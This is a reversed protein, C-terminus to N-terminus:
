HLQISSSVLPVDCHQVDCVGKSRLLEITSIFLGVLLVSLLTFVLVMNGFNGLGQMGDRGGWERLPHAVVHHHSVQCQRRRFKRARDMQM